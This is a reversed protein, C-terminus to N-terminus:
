MISTQYHYRIFNAKFSTSNTSERVSLKSNSNKSPNSSKNSPNSYSDLTKPSNTASFKNNQVYISMKNEESSKFKEYAAMLFMRVFFIYTHSMLISTFHIFMYLLNYLIYYNINLFHFIIILLQNLGNIFLFLSFYRLDYFTESLNWELFVLFCITFFLILNYATQIMSLWKGVANTYSCVYFNKNDTYFNIEKITHLNSVVSIVLLLIQVSLLVAVYIYQNNKIWISFKNRRPFNCILKHLITIYILSYGMEMFVHREACKKKTPINYYEFISFLLLLSGLIYILWLDTSLFKFYKDKYKPIFILLVSVVLCCFVMLLFALLIKGLTSKMTLFYIKNIDVIEKAMEKATILGNLFDNFNQLFRKSFYEYDKMTSSPRFYFQTEKMMECNINNCCEYDDYLTNLATILKLKKVIIEKQFNESFIYKLVEISANKREDIINKNIGLNFGGIISGNIGPKKGPLASITYNPMRASSYFNVFVMNETIM